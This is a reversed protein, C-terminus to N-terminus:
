LDAWGTIPAAKAQVYALAQEWKARNQDGQVEAWIARCDPTLPAGETPSPTMNAADVRISCGAKKMRTFWDEADFAM